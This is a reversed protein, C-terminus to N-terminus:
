RGRGKRTSEQTRNPFPCILEEAYARYRSLLDTDFLGKGEHAARQPGFACHVAIGQGDVVVHRGLEKPRETTLYAEDDRPFPFADLIDDGRIGFFNISVRAYHYDWYDFKYRYLDGKEVHSLFSYHTQAAAAWNTLGGAFADFSLHSAPTRDIDYGGIVPLWRHNSYPAPQSGDFVFDEPGEWPPLESTRWSPSPRPEPAELEPLFPEYAGMSYHVWSLAPNNIVNASVAFLDPHKVM